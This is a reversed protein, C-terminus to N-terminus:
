YFKLGVLCTLKLVAKGIIIHKLQKSALKVRKCLHQCIELGDGYAVRIGRRAEFEVLNRHYFDM